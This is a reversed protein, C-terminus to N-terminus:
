LRTGQFVICKWHPVKNIWIIQSGKLTGIYDLLRLMKPGFPKIDEAISKVLLGKEEMHSKIADLNNVSLVPIILKGSNELHRSAGNIVKDILLRGDKGGWLSKDLPESSPIQPPNCIITDFKMRKVPTYLSGLRFSVNSVGNLKANTTACRLIRASIDTAVVSAAGLKSAVIALLGSGTGLDLVKEENMMGLTKALLLSVRSPDFVSPCRHLKISFGQQLFAIEIIQHPRKVGHLM